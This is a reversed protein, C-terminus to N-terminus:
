KKVCEGTVAFKYYGVEDKWFEGEFPWYYHDDPVVITAEKTRGTAAGSDKGILSAELAEKEGLTIEFRITKAEAFLRNLEAEQDEFELLILRGGLKRLSEKHGNMSDM